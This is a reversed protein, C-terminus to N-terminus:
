GKRLNVALVSLKYYSLALALANTIISEEQCKFNKMLMGLAHGLVAFSLFYPCLIICQMCVKCTLIQKSMKQKGGTRLFIYFYLASQFYTFFLFEDIM